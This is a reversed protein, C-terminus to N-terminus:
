WVAANSRASMVVVGRRQLTRVRGDCRPTAAHPGLWWVAAHDPRAGCRTTAANLGGGPIPAGSRGGGERGGTTTISHYLGGKGKTTGGGRTAACQHNGGRGGTTTIRHYLSGWWQM